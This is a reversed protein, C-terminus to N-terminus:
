SAPGRHSAIFQAGLRLRRRTLDKGVVAMTDFLPPSAKRGTVLLRLLMFVHKTKYGTEECYARSTQELNEATWAPMAEYREILTLIAKSVDKKAVDGIKLKDAVSSYDLDGSFFYETAPIFEDLRKMRQRMLPAIRLLHERGLRWSLLADVLEQDSLDHLYKENLWRLKGPDFVPGGLSVRDWSFVDIMEELTFKERDGGFSWGMIALFNLLAHPLIGADRYYDISVPYKRKSIKSKDPNRLLPMHIWVPPDWGFADYLMVHKPTSSIWEEARIVHSIEMLRDDVVNALHYTPFGDSKLLVQDDIQSNAIDVEGRLRDVFVTSGESPTALRVTHPEGSAARRKAEAPDIDRCHGDYGPKAKEARQKARLNDLREPTCFCRYARGREILTETHQRYIAARESQRYPGFRGGVDPGEDWSLGIWRLARLIAEESAARSRSRDTDEIRLLFTGGEKRAFAYNFLAIYATGVHPDGTPSPAIRVRVGNSAPADTRNEVSPSAM